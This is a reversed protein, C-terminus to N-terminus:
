KKVLTINKIYVPKGLKKMRRVMDMSGSSNNKIICILADAYDAMKQNRRHGAKADYKGYPNTKIVADPFTLDHWDAPFRKINIKNNKAFEEGLLDIGRATGSVIETIDFGSEKVSIKVFSINNIGRSGAIIVKMNIASLYAVHYVNKM